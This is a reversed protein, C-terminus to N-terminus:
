PKEVAEVGLMLPLRFPAHIKAGCFGHRKQSDIPHM